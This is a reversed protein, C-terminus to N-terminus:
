PSKWYFGKTILEWTMRHNAAIFWLLSYDKRTVRLDGVIINREFFRHGVLGPLAHIGPFLVLLWPNGARLAIAILSLGMVTGLVHLGVNVVNKHEPLFVNTYFLSFRKRRQSM